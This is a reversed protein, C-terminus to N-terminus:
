IRVELIDSFRTTYCPSLREQRLKWKRGTGQVALKVKNRGMKKNITDVVSNIERRKGRDLNDFLSLQVQSEPITRGVIVGAKKYICDSRYIQDLGKLAFRVIEMSDNTPVDLNFVRYPHYQKAQPKFHNTNLFISITSCCSKEKRLKAACTSAHSSVAERLKSLEKIETGFSRATCINKKRQITTQLPYCIEGKLEKQIKVLNISFNRKIWNIDTERFRLATHIGFEKLSKARKKGIGWLDGVPFVNLARRILDEDDFIFCGEKTYKKAIHNAVKALTKTKAVGISVPIGTWRQVKKKIQIARDKDAIDSFDLFAEDISYVEIKNVETKFTNMVRKSLDGYLSFNTSFVNVDYKEVVNKIKFAPEGMKIGLKKAENSRAIICGDNNSLVVVPKRELRPNFVRECSAYFNNCDALAIM